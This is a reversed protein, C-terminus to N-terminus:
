LPTTGFYPWKKFLNEDVTTNYYVSLCNRTPIPPDFPRWIHFSACSCCVKRVFLSCNGRITGKVVFFFTITKCLKCIRHYTRSVLHFIHGIGSYKARFLSASWTSEKNKSCFFLKIGGPPKKKPHKQDLKFRRMPSFCLAFKRSLIKCCETRCLQSLMCVSICAVYEVKQANVSTPCWVTYWQIQTRVFCKFHSAHIDVKNGSVTHVYKYVYM